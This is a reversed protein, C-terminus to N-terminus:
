TAAGILGHLGTMLDDTREAGFTQTLDEQARAWLPRAREVVSAGARTVELVRQRRDHEGPRCDVYGREVLPAIERSLTTRDMALGAALSGVTQAGERELRALLSYANTTLGVPALARDYHRAVVRTAMRLSSCVCHSPAPERPVILLM